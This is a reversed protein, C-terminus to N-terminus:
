FVIEPKGDDGMRVDACLTWAFKDSYRDIFEDATGEYVKRGGNFVRVEQEGFREVNALLMANGKSDRIKEFNKM